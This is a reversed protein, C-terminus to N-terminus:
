FVKSFASTKGKRNEANEPVFGDNNMIPVCADFYRYKNMRKIIPQHTKISHNESVITISRFLGETRTTSNYKHWNLELFYTYLSFTHNTIVKCLNLEWPSNHPTSAIVNCTYLEDRIWYLVSRNSNACINVSYNVLKLQMHLWESSYILATWIASFRM